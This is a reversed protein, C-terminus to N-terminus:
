GWRQEGVKRILAVLAEDPTTVLGACAALRRPLWMGGYYPLRAVVCEDQEGTVELRPWEFLDFATRNRFAVEVLRETCSSPVPTQGSVPTASSIRVDDM